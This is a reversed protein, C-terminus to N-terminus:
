QTRNLFKMALGCDGPIEGHIIPSKDLSQQALKIAAQVYNEQWRPDMMWPREGLVKPLDGAIEPRLIMRMTPYSGVGGRAWANTMPILHHDLIEQYQEKYVYRHGFKLAYDHYIDVLLDNYG